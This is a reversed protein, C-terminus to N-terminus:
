AEQSVLAPFLRIDQNVRIWLCDHPLLNSEHRELKPDILRLWDSSVQAVKWLQQDTKSTTVLQDLKLDEWLLSGDHEAPPNENVPKIRNVEQYLIKISLKSKAENEQQKYSSLPIAFCQISSKDVSVVAKEGGSIYRSILDAEIGFTVLHGNSTEIFNVDVVTNSSLIKWDHHYGSYVQLPSITKTEVPRAKTSKRAISGPSNGPKEFPTIPNYHIKTGLLEKLHWYSERNLTAKQTSGWGERTFITSFTIINATNDLEALRKAHYGFTVLFQGEEVFFIHHDSSHDNWWKQHSTTLSNVFEDKEKDKVLFKPDEFSYDRCDNWLVRYGLKSKQGNIVTGRRGDIHSLAENKRCKFQTRPILQALPTPQMPQVPEIKPAPSSVVEAQNFVSQVLSLRGIKRPPIGYKQETPVEQTSVEETLAEQVPIEETLAESPIDSYYIKVLRKILEQCEPYRLEDSDQEILESIHQIAKLTKLKKELMDIQEKM